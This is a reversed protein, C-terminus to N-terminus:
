LFTCLFIRVHRVMFLYVDKCYVADHFDSSFMQIITHCPTLDYCVDRTDQEEESLHEGMAEDLDRQVLEVVREIM